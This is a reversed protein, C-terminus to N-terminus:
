KVIKKSQEIKYSDVYSKLEAKMNILNMMEDCNRTQVNVESLFKILEYVKNKSTDVKCGKIEEFIYYVEMFQELTICRKNVILTENLKNLYRDAYNDILFNWLMANIERYGDSYTGIADIVNVNRLLIYFELPNKITGLLSARNIKAFCRLYTDVSINHVNLLGEKFKIITTEDEPIFDESIDNLDNEYNSKNNLIENINNKM